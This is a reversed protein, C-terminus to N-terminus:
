RTSCWLECQNYSESSEPVYLRVPYPAAAVVWHADPSKRYARLWAQTKCFLSDKSNLHKKHHYWSNSSSSAKKKGKKKRKM